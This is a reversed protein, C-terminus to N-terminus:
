RFGEFPLAPIRSPPYASAFASLKPLDDYRVLLTTGAVIYIQGPKQIEQWRLGFRKKWKKQIRRHYSAKRGNARRSHRKLPTWYGGAVPIIQHRPVRVAGEDLLRMARRMIDMTLTDGSM